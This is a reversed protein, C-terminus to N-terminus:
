KGTSEGATTQQGGNEGIPRTGQNQEGTPGIGRYRVSAAHLQPSGAGQSALHEACHGTACSTPDSVVGWPLM